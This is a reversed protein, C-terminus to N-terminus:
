PACCDNVVAQGGGGTNVAVAKDANAGMQIVVVDLELENVIFPVLRVVAENLTPGKAPNVKESVAPPVYTEVKAIVCAPPVCLM